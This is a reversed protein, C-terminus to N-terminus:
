SMRAILDPTDTAATNVRRSVEYTEMGKYDMAEQTKLTELLTPLTANNALWTGSEEPMFIVPMRSHIPRMLENAATTVIAFREGPGEKGEPQWIGAFAFPNNKKLHIRYPTKGSPTAKWEYFGDAIVLCRRHLLDDRFTARDRLTEARVNILGGPRTMWAPAVGWTALVIHAPDDNVIVPLRQSPAANYRPLFPEVFTAHFREQIEEPEIAISYRGCM